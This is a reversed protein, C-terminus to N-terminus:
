GPYIAAECGMLAGLLGAAGFGAIADWNCEPTVPAPLTTRPTRWYLHACPDGFDAEDNKRYHEHKPAKQKGGCTVVPRPKRNRGNEGNNRDNDTRAKM